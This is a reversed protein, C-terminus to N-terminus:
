NNMRFLHASESKMSKSDTRVIDIGGHPRSPVYRVRNMQTRRYLVPATIVSSFTFFIKKVAKLSVIKEECLKGAFETQDSRNKKSYISLYLLYIPFYIHIEPERYLRKIQISVVRKGTIKFLSDEFYEYHIGAM